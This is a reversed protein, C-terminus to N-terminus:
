SRANLDGRVREINHCVVAYARSETGFLEGAIERSEEFLELAHEPEGQDALFGAVNNLASAYSASVRGNLELTMARGREFLDKARTVDGAHWLCVGLNMLTTAISNPHQTGAASGELLALAREHCARAEDYRGQDQYLLGINNYCSITRWDDEPLSAQYITLAHKFTEEAKDFDRCLRYLGALNNVTTGYESNTEGWAERLIEGAEIFHERADDYRGLYREVSAADNLAIALHVDGPACVSRACALEECAVPYALAYEGRMMHAQLREIIQNLETYDPEDVYGM